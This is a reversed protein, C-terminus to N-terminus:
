AVAAKADIGYSVLTSFIKELLQREGSHLRQTGHIDLILGYAYRDIAVFPTYRLAWQALIGLAKQDREHDFPLSIAQPALANALALTMGSRVGASHAQPCCEKVVLQNACKEVLFLATHAPSRTLRQALRVSWNPLYLYLYRRM